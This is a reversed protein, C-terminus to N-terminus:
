ALKKFLDRAKDSSLNVTDTFVIRNKGVVDFTLKKVKKTDSIKSLDTTKNGKARFVSPLTVDKITEQSATTTTTTTQNTSSTSSSSDNSPPATGAYITGKASPNSELHYKYTGPTNFSQEGSSGSCILDCLKSWTGDDGIIKRSESDQNSFCVYYGNSGTAATISTPSVKNNKITIYYSLCGGGGLVKGEEDSPKQTIEKNSQTVRQTKNTPPSTKNFVYLISGSVSAIIGIIAAVIILNHAPKM